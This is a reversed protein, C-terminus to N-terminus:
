LLVLDHHHDAGYQLNQSEEWPLYDATTTTTTAAELAAAGAATRLPCRRLDVVGSLLDFPPAEM